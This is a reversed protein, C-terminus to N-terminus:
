RDERCCVFILRQFHLRGVPSYPEDPVLQGIGELSDKFESRAM